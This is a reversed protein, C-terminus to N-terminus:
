GPRGRRAALARGAAVRGGLGRDPGGSGGGSTSGPARRVIGVAAGRRGRLVAAAASTARLAQGGPSAPVLAPGSRASQGTGPAIRGSPAPDVDRDRAAVPCKEAGGAGGAG